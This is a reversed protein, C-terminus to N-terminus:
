KKAKMSETNLLTKIRAVARRVERVRATNTLQGAVRQFRLNFSEKKLDLVMKKLEDTKKKRLDIVKM